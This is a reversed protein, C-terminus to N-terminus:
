MFEVRFISTAIAAQQMTGIPNMTTIVETTPIVMPRALASANPVTAAPTHTATM